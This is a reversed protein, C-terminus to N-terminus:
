KTNIIASGLEFARQNIEVFKPNKRAFLDSIASKFIDPELETLKSLAGTMVFNVARVSGAEEALKQADFAYVGTDSDALESITNVIDEPYEAQGMAVTIPITRNTNILLSGGKKLLHSWRMGELEEFALIFDAKGPEIVPSYVRDSIRVYTVVSGGRQAMGHVESVKVDLGLRAAILGFLKGAVLTGQGGVGALVINLEKM